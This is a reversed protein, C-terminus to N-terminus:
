SESTIEKYIFVPMMIFLIFVVRNKPNNPSNFFVVSKPRNYINYLLYKIFMLERGNRKPTHIIFHVSIIFIYTLTHKFVPYSPFHFLFM